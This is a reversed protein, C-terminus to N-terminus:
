WEKDLGSGWASNTKIENKYNNHDVKEIDRQNLTRDRSGINLRWGKNNLEGKATSHVLQFSNSSANDAYFIFKINTQGDPLQFYQWVENIYEFPNAINENRRNPAGYKLYVYGRDTAYGRELQTSFNQVTYAVREQYKKFESEAGLQYRSYWFRYLFDQMETVQKRKVLFNITTSENNSSISRLAKLIESLTDADTIHHAFNDDIIIQDQKDIPNNRYISLLNVSMLKNKKDRVEIVVSYNGSALDKIDFQRILPIVSKAELKEFKSCKSVMTNNDDDKLYYKVLFNENEGFVKDTNYIEAYFSLKKLNPPYYSSTFPIIMFGSKNWTNKESSKEIKDVLEIGSICISDKPYDIELPVDISFPKSDPNNADSIEILFEYKGNELAYRQQNIFDFNGNITDYKPSKLNFKDFNIIKGDRRFIYQILINAQFKGDNGAKYKVTNSRVLLHTEVYPKSGIHNFTTYTLNAKLKQQSFSENFFVLLGIM